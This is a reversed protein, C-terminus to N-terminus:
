LGKTKITVSRSLPYSGKCTLTYTKGTVSSGINKTGQLAQYGSWAGSSYCSTVNRTDWKLIVNGNIITYFFNVYPSLVVPKSEPQKVTPSTNSTASTTNTQNPTESTTTPATKTQSTQQVQSSTQFPVITPMSSPRTINLTSAPKPDVTITLSTTAAFTENKCTLIFTKTETLNGIYYKGQVAKYVSPWSPGISRCGTANRTSWQLTVSDDYSIHTADATFSIAPMGDQTIQINSQQNPKITYPAPIDQVQQVDTQKTPSTPVSTTQPESPKAIPLADSQPQTPQIITRRYETQTNPEIKETSTPTPVPTEVTTRTPEPVVINPTPAQQTPQIETTVSEPQKKPTQTVLPSIIKPNVTVSSSQTISGGLGTCTVSYLTNTQPSVVTDGVTSTMTDWSNTCSSANSSTFRVHIIDGQTITPPDLVITVTPPSPPTIIEPPSLVTIVKSIRGSSGGTNQCNIWYTETRPGILAGTYISGSTPQNPGNWSTECTTALSSSWTIAVGLGSPVTSTNVNITATPIPIQKCSNTTDNWTSWVPTGYPNPCSSTRTQVISGTQTNTCSITQQESSTTCTPPIITITVTSTIPEGLNTLCTLIYKKNTTINSFTQSGSLGKYDGSWDGSASCGTVEQNNWTLTHSGGLQVQAVSSILSVKPTNTFISVAVPASTTLKPASCSIYNGNKSRSSICSFTDQYETCSMKETSSYCNWNWTSGKDTVEGPVGSGANGAKCLDSNITPATKVPVGHAPGCTYGGVGVASATSTVTGVSFTIPGSIRFSLTCVGAGIGCGNSVVTGFRLSHSGNALTGLSFTFAGNPSANSGTDYKIVGPNEFCEQNTGNCDLIYFNRGGADESYIGSLTVPKGTQYVMGSQPSTITNVQAAFLTEFSLFYVLSLFVIRTLNRVTYRFPISM